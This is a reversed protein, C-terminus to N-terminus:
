RGSDSGAMPMAGLRDAIARAAADHGAANWHGDQEFHLAEGPHLRMTPLLDLLPVDDRVAFRALRNQFVPDILVREDLRLGLRTAWWYRRRTSCLRPWTSRTPDSRSRTPCSRIPSPPSSRM